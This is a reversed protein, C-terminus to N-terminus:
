VIRSVEVRELVILLSPLLLLTTFYSYILSLGTLLGFQGLMPTIALVLAGIGLTDTVLTGTLAGGTGRLTTEIAEIPDETSQREIHYRHTIHVTYDVGLGISLALITASLANFPIGLARMTATLLCVTVIIPLLAVLGLGARGVLFRFLLIMFIGDILFAATFSHLASEFIRNAVSDLVVIQGTATADGRYRDAFSRADAAVDEIAAESRVEIIIRTEDRDETLYESALPGYETDFTRDYVADLNRDPVGDGTRDNRSITAALRPDETAALGIPVLISQSEASGDTEVFTAPPNEEVRVLQRLADDTTMDMRLHITVTDEEGTVFDEELIRTSQSVTYEMPQMPYPLYDVYGPLEEPPLFDDQDFSTDVGAGYGGVLGTVLVVVVLFAVPSVRAPVAASKLCRGLISDDPAIPSSGFEPIGYTDRRDDLWIKAAPLYLGFIFLTFTMGIGAVIGFERIPALDSTVNSFFGIVTTGAIIGFAIMLRGAVTRMSAHGAMGSERRERYRDIMHISFDVGIALLLIPVAILMQNFPLGVLGAVGFTWIITMLIASTALVLDLPDRYAVLLLGLILTATIPIVIALSDFVISRFEDELIGSGFVLLGRDIGRVTEEVDRQLDILEGEDAEPLAHTVVVLSASAESAEPSFDESVVSTFVPDDAVNRIAADLESRSAGEIVRRKQAPTEATSDIETAVIAAPATTETVRLETREMMQEIVLLQTSLAEKTLVNREEHQIIQTTSEDPGFTPEFQATVTELADAEPVEDTFRDTGPETEILTIGPAFVVTLIFFVLIVRGPRDVIEDAIRDTIRTGV